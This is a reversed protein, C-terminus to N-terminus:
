YHCVSCDTPAGYEKHCDICDGMRLDRVQEAYDIENELDGHCEVCDFGYNIHSSHVFHVHDPMQHVRQWNIAEGNEFHDVLTAIDENGPPQIVGHCDMCLELSPMGAFADESVTRHCYECDLGATAVHQTHPFAIPQEAAPQWTPSLFYSRALVATVPLALLILLVLGVILPRMFRRM